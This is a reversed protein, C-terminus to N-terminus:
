SEVVREAARRLRDNIALGLGYTPFEHALILDVGAADLTRMAAFLRQAVEDLREYSGLSEIVLSHQSQPNAVSLADNSTEMGKNKEKGIEKKVAELMPLVQSMILSVDQADEETLLLGIRQGKRQQTELTYLLADRVNAAEGTFLWLSAKPAYHKDLLGPSPLPRTKNLLPRPRVEGIVEVLAELTVGGPRLLTPVEGTLDLVTSEVGIETAGGDLILEIQGNLDDRVHQATTPSTHSFRNASPAAIPTQAARILALALPHRPSRIAVSPGGATIIDPVIPHKRLVLTLPGPWFAQALKRAVDPVDIALRDLWSVDAVHVILPDSTPRGKALFIRQTAAANLADAGLGYVTETPFAVLGGQQIVAAAEGIVAAASSSTPQSPDIQLIRTIMTM